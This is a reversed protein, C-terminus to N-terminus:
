DNIEKPGINEEKTKDLFDRILVNLIQGVEERSKDRDSTFALL